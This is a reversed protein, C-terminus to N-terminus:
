SLSGLYRVGSERCWPVPMLQTSRCLDLVPHAYPSMLFPFIPQSLPGKSFLPMPPNARAHLLKAQQIRSADAQAKPASDLRTSCEPVYFATLNCLLWDRCVGFGGRDPNLRMRPLFSVSSTREDLSTHMMISNGLSVDGFNGLDLQM